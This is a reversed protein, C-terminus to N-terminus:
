RLDRKRRRMLAALDPISPLRFRRDAIGSRRDCALYTQCQRRDIRKKRRDMDKAPDYSAANPNSYLKLRRQLLSRSSEAM